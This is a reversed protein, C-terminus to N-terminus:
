IDEPEVVASECCPSVWQWDEHVEREGWFEYIGIGLDRLTGTCPEGCVECVGIPADDPDYRPEM